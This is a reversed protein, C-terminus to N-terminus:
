TVEKVSIFTKVFANSVPDRTIFVQGLTDKYDDGTWRYLGIVKAGDIMLIGFDYQLVLYNIADQGYLTHETGKDDYYSLHYNGDSKAEFSRFLKLCGVDKADSDLYM